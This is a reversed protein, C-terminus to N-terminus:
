VYELAQGCHFSYTVIEVEHTHVKQVAIRYSYAIRIYVTRYAIRIYVTRYAIRIYVTRYAIRISM